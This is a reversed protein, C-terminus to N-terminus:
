IDDSTEVDTEPSTETSAEASEQESVEEKKEEELSGGQGGVPKVDSEQKPKPPNQEPKEKEDPDPKTLREVPAPQPKPKPVEAKERGLLKWEKSFILSFSSYDNLVDDRDVRLRYVDQGDRATKEAKTVAHGDYTLQVYELVEQPIEIGDIVSTVGSMTFEPTIAPSELSAQQGSVLRMSGFTFGSVVLVLIAIKKM